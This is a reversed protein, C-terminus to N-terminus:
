RKLVAVTVMLQGLHRMTHEASHTYLGMITSPLQGRGVGRFDTLTTEDTKSLQMLADDVQKNFVDVLQMVTYTKTTPKGEAHLYNLQEATLAEGRAYTFLRNLVGALHQLHFGPSAMGAVDGWLLEDPFGTMLDNLEERAQLLAHAVPQLLAPIGTLPGRLWVEPLKHNAM